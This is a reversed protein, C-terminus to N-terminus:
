IVPIKRRLLIKIKERIEPLSFLFWFSFLTEIIFNFDFSIFIESGEVALNRLIDIFNLFHLRDM